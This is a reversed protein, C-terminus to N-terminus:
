MIYVFPSIEYLILGMSMMGPVPSRKVVRWSALPSHTRPDQSHLNSIQEGVLNGRKVYSVVILTFLVYDHQM